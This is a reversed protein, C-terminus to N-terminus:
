KKEDESDTDTKLLQLMLLILFGVGTLVKYGVSFNMWFITGSSYLDGPNGTKYFVNKCFNFGYLLGVTGFFTYMIAGVSENKRILEMNFVKKIGDFGYGLYVLIVSSAVLVGGQFGGGPSLHGHFVIYFGLMLGIPTFIDAGCKVVINKVKINKNM